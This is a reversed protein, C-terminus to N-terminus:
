VAPPANYLSDASIMSITIVIMKVRASNPHMAFKNQYAMLTQKINMQSVFPVRYGGQDAM